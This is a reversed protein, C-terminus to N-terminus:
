GMSTSFSNSEKLHKNTSARPLNFLTSIHSPINQVPLNSSTHELHPQSNVHDNFPTQREFSSMIRNNQSFDNTMVPFM